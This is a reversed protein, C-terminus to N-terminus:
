WRRPTRWGSRGGAGRREWSRGRARARCPPGRPSPSAACPTLSASPRVAGGRMRTIFRAEDKVTSLTVMLSPLFRSTRRMKAWTPKVHEVQPARADAEQGVAAELVPLPARQHARLDLPQDLQRAALALLGSALARPADAAPRRTACAPACSAGAPPARSAPRSSSRSPRPPVNSSSPCPPVCSAILVRAFAAVRWFLPALMLSCRSALPMRTSRASRCESGPRRRSSEEIADAGAVLAVCSAPM